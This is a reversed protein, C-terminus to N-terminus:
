LQIFTVALTVGPSECEATRSSIKRTVSVRERMRAAKLVCHELLSHIGM